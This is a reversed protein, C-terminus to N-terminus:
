VLVFLLFKWMKNKLLWYKIKCNNSGNMSQYHFERNIILTRGFLISFKNKKNPNNNKLKKNKLVKIMKIIRMMIRLTTKPTKKRRKNKNDGKNDMRNILQLHLIRKLKEKRTTGHWLTVSLYSHKTTKLLNKWWKLDSNFTKSTLKISITSM